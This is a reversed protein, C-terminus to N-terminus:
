HTQFNLWGIGRFIALTAFFNSSIVDANTASLEIGVSSLNFSIMGSMSRKTSVKAVNSLTCTVKSMVSQQMEEAEGIEVCM